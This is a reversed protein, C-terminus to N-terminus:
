APYSRGQKQTPEPLDRFRHLWSGGSGGSPKRSLNSGFDVVLALAAAGYVGVLLWYERTLDVGGLFFDQPTSPM